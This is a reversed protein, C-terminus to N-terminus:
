VQLSTVLYERFTTPLSSYANEYLRIYSRVFWTSLRTEDVSLLQYRINTVNFSNDILNCNKIFYHQCWLNTLWEALIHLLQVCMKVLNVDDTWWSRSKLECAWLMLTKIHYNNLTCPESNDACDTLRETKVFYRLTHYVIQQM